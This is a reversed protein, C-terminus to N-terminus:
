ASGTIAAPHPPKMGAFEGARVVRQTLPLGAAAARAGSSTGGGLAASALAVCLTAAGVGAVGIRVHWSRRTRRRATSGANVAGHSPDGRVPDGCRAAGGVIAPSNHLTCPGHWPSTERPLM